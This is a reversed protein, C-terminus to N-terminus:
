ATGGNAVPVFLSRRGGAGRARTGCRARNRRRDSRCRCRAEAGTFGLGAARRRDDAPAKGVEEQRVRGALLHGQVVQGGLGAVFPEHDDVKHPDVAGDRVEIEFVQGVQGFPVLLLADPDDANLGVGADCRGAGGLVGPLEFDGEGDQDVGPLADGALEGRGARGLDEDEISEAGDAVVALDVVAVPVGVLSALRRPAFEFLGHLFQEGAFGDRHGLRSGAAAQDRVVIARVALELTM